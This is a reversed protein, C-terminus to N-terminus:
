QLKNKIRTKGDIEKEGDCESCLVEKPTPSTGGFMIKVVKGSENCRECDYDFRELYQNEHHFFPDEDIM